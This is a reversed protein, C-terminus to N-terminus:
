RGGEEGLVCNIVTFEEDEVGFLYDEYISEEITIDFPPFSLFSGDGGVRVVECKISGVEELAERTFVFNVMGNKPNKIEGKLKIKMGSAKQIVLSVESNTLDLPAVINKKLTLQLVRSNHDNQKVTVGENIGTTLILTRMDNIKEVEIIEKKTPNM